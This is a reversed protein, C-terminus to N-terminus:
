NINKSKEYKEELLSKKCFIGYKKGTKLNEEMCYIMVKKFSDVLAKSGNVRDIKKTDVKDTIESIKKHWYKADPIFIPLKNQKLELFFDGYQENFKSIDVIFKNLEKKTDFAICLFSLFPLSADLLDGSNNMYQVWSVIPMIDKTMKGDQLKCIGRHFVNSEELIYGM